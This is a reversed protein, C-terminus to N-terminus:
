QLINIFNIQRYATQAAPHQAVLEQIPYCAGLLDSITLTIAETKFVTKGYGAGPLRMPPGKRFPLYRIIALFPNSLSIQHTKGHQTVTRIQAAQDFVIKQHAAHWGHQVFLVPDLLLFCVICLLFGSFLLDQSMSGIAKCILAVVM